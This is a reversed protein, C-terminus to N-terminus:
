AERSYIRLSNEEMQQSHVMLHSINMNDHFMALLCEEVLDKSVGKPFHSIKDRPNSVFSPTYNSLITFKLSYDLVSM